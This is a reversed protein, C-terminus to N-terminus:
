YRIIGNNKTNLDTVQKELDKIKTNLDKIQKELYTQGKRHKILEINNQCEQYQQNLKSITEELMQQKENLKNLISLDNQCQIIKQNNDVIKTKIQEKDGIFVLEKKNNLIAITDIM